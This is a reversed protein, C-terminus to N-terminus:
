SGIADALMGGLVGAAPLVQEYKLLHILERLEGDYAGFAIRKLCRGRKAALPARWIEDARALGAMGEGCIECTADLDPQM